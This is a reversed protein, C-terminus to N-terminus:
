SKDENVNKAYQFCLQNAIHNFELYTASCGTISNYLSTPVVNSLAYIFHTLNDDEMLEEQDISFESDTDFMSVIAEKIKLAYEIHKENKEIM